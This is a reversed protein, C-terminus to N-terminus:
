YYENNNKFNDLAYFFSRRDESGLTLPRKSKPLIGLLYILAQNASIVITIERAVM